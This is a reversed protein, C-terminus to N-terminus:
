PNCCEFMAVAGTDCRQVQCGVNRPKACQAVAREEARTGSKCTCPCILTELEPTPEPDVEVVPTPEVEMVPTPEPEVVEIDCCQRGKTGDDSRCRTVECLGVRSGRKCMKRARKFSGRGTLCKCPCTMRMRLSLNMNQETLELSLATAVVLTLLFFIKLMM